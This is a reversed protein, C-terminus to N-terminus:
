SPRSDISRARAWGTAHRRDRDPEPDRRAHVPRAALATVGDVSVTAEEAAELLASQTRPNTRNLEDFVVINAFVPGPRFRLRMGDHDPVMTGTVDGPLLDPTGQIRHFTGGVAAAM